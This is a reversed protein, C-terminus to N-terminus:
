ATFTVEVVASPIRAALAVREEVRTTIINSTFKGLDSNTSEVRV